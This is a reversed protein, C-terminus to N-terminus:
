TNRRVALKKELHKVVKVMDEDTDVQVTDLGHRIPSDTRIGVGMLTYGKAKCTVIERQLIELEEDHNAAPMKGDTYYLIIRDTETREDLRKRYYEISHGDLNDAVSGLNRLAEKQIDNWPADAHKVEYIEMDLGRVNTAGNKSRVATHAYVAFKVGARSCLEAQAMAARKALKLNLGVTSGSIDIGILVFYDKKGPLRKKQFLRDDNGWARKGLVGGNVRGSRLHRQMDHRQNDAFAVRMRMLAPGLISEPIHTDGAVGSEDDSLGLHRLLSHNWGRATSKDDWAVKPPYTHVNVGAVNQSPKEFYMGQVIAVDVAREDEEAELTKPKEVHDGFVSLARAADEADGPPPEEPWSLVTGGEGQDAGTDVEEVPAGDADPVPDSADASPDSTDDPADTVSPDSNSKNPDVDVSSEPVEPCATGDGDADRADSDTGQAAAPDDDRQASGGSIDSAQDTNSGASDSDSDPEGGCVSEDVEGGDSDSGSDEGDGGGVSGAEPEDGIDGQGTNGSEQDAADGSDDGEGDTSAEDDSPEVERDAGTGDNGETDENGSEGAQGEDVPDEGGVEGEGADDSRGDPRADSLGNGDDSGSADPSVDDESGEGDGMSDTGPDGAGESDGEPDPGGSNDDSSSDGEGEAAEGAESARDGGESSEGSDEASDDASDPIEPGGDTGSGDSDGDQNDTGTGSDEGTGDGSDSQDTGGEDEEPEPEPESEPETDDRCFGLDRLRDLVPFALEYVGAVSRVSDMRNLIHTLTTDNLAEVVRPHFWAQYNYGAAKAFLGVIAQSDIAYESWMLISRDPQEVGNGFADNSWAEFMTKTGPRVRYMERNVRVDELANVIVPLFDSVLGAYGLYGAKEWQPAATVREIIATKRPSMSMDVAQQIIEIREQGTPVRFSEGAIHGIEHFITTIVKERAACSPCRQIKTVSDRRECRPKDHVLDDGLEIPPRFYIKNGDTRPSGSDMEVIVQRKTFARAFATLTPQMRRFAAVAKIARESRDLQPARTSFTDTTTTM